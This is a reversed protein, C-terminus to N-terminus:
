RQFSSVWHEFKEASLPKSILYGQIADCGQQKLWSMAAETEVGEAVVKLGLDHSLSLTARVIAQDNPDNELDFIFSRDIKITHVPLKKLYALSSFGTGFDDIAIKVNLIELQRLLNVVKHPNSMMASETIEVTLKHDTTQNQQMMGVIKDVLSNDSLNLMSLNVSVGIDQGQERWHRQQGLAMELVTDTLQTILGTQEAMEVMLEPSIPGYQPHNWRLLSEASLLSDDQLNIIPQYVLELQRETIAKGLDNVIELRQLSYVDSSADYYEFGTQNKKAQYMAIDAHRLLTQADKGDEPYSSIGISASCPLQLSDFEIPQNLSALIKQAIKGADQKGLLPLLIAFEDGGLRAVTDTERLEAGFRSGVEILLKDGTHHGLTDNVEKFRDLDIVLLSISDHARHALQIDHAIHDFLLARNPLSTLSDHLARYELESQRISIQRRMENFADILGRTEITKAIPLEHGTKGMAQAKLAQSVLMIPRFVQRQTLLVLLFVFAIAIIALILLMANSQQALQSMRNIDLELSQNQSIELSALLRNVQEFGPAIDKQILVTDMRWRDSHNILRVQLYGEYWNEIATKAEEIATATEFELLGDEDLALLQELDARVELYLTEIGQEQIPLSSVVFSGVRNALYLRFNSLLQSWYYRTDVLTKYIEDTPDSAEISYLALSFANNASNRNPQMVQNAVSLSPFQKEPDIRVEILQGVKEKLDILKKHLEHSTLEANEQLKPNTERIGDYDDIANDLHTIIDQRHRTIDPKHLFLDLATYASSLSTRIAHTSSLLQQRAILNDTTQNKANNLRWYSASAAVLMLLTILAALLIFRFRLSSLSLQLEM